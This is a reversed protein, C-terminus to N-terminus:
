FFLVFLKPCSHQCRYDLARDIVYFEKEYVLYKRYSDSLKKSYFAIPKSKWSLVVDTRVNSTDCEFKFVKKLILYLFLILM